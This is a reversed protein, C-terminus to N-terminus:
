WDSSPSHPRPTFPTILPPERVKGTTPELATLPLFPQAWLGENTSHTCSIMWGKLALYRWRVTCRSGLVIWTISDMDWDRSATSTWIPLFLSLCFRSNQFRHINAVGRWHGTRPVKSRKKIKHSPHDWLIYNRSSFCTAAKALLAKACMQRTSWNLQFTKWIIVQAGAM